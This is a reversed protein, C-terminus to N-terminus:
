QDLGRAARDAEREWQRLTSLRVPPSHGEGDELVYTVDNIRFRAIFQESSDPLRRLRWREPAPDFDDVVAEADELFWGVQKDSPHRDQFLKAMATALDYVRQEDRHTNACDDTDFEYAAVCYQCPRV